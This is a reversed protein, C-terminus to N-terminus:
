PAGSGGGGGGAAGAAGAALGCDLISIARLTKGSSCAASHTSTVRRASPPSSTAMARTASISSESMFLPGSPFSATPRMFRASSMTDSLSGGGNISSCGGGNMSSSTGGPRPSAGTSAGASTGSLTWIRSAAIAPSSSARRDPSPM